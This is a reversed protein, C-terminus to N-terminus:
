KATRGTDILDDLHWRTPQGLKRIAGIDNAALIRFPVANREATVEEGFLKWDTLYYLVTQSTTGACLVVQTGDPLVYIGHERLAAAQAQM